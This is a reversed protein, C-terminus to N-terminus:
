YRQEYLYDARRAPADAAYEILTETILGQCRQEIERLLDAHLPHSAPLTWYGNVQEQEIQEVAGDTDITIRYTDTTQMEVGSWCIVPEELLFQLTGCDRM